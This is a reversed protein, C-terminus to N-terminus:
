INAMFGIGRSKTRNSAITVDKPIVVIPRKNAPSRQVANALANELQIRVLRPSLTSLKDIVKKDLKTAFHKGWANMNLLEDYISCIIARAQATTPPHIAIEIMRSRIPEPIQEPYNASAIWIVFSVDFPIELYEDVFHKATHRELLGYMPGLPNHRSDTTVKDIEDLMFIPNAYTSKRISKSVFGPKSDMWSSYGGAVVFSSSVSAFDLSFFDTGLVAALESIFRTKGVGPPGTLLLPPIYLTKPDELGSLCLTSKVRAIVENFNGFKEALNELKSIIDSNFMALPKHDSEKLLDRLIMIRNRNTEADIAKTVSTKDFINIVQDAENAEAEAETENSNKCENKILASNPIFENFNSDMM